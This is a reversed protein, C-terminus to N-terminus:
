GVGQQHYLFAHGYKRLGTTKDVERELNELANRCHESTPLISSPLLYLPGEEGM